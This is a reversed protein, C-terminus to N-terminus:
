ISWLSSGIDSHAYRTIEEEMKGKSKWFSSVQSAYCSAATKWRFIEDDTLEFVFKKSHESVKLEKISQLKGAYPFDPYYIKRNPLLEAVERILLHDIHTGVGLPIVLVDQIPLQEKVREVLENILDTEREHSPTFLDHKNRVLPNGSEPYKRYICDLYDFHRWDVSLLTCAAIDEKRRIEYPNQAGKWRHHLLQAFPTLAGQPPDATFFSWVEVTEGAAVQRSIIGGCSFVADDLHPSLYITKMFFKASDSHSESNM